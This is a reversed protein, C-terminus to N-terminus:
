QMKFIDRNLSTSPEILFLNKIEFLQEDTCELDYKLYKKWFM